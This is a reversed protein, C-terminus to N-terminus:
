KISETSKALDIWDQISLDEARINKDLNLQDFIKILQEKDINSDNSLNNILKKRKASLGRHVLQWVQQEDAKYDWDKIDSIQLIASDVEPQPYFNDKTIIKILKSQAYFAVALSLLSHKQNKLTIREAVEKQVLLTMSVPKQKATIFKEILKGTLYYPINSIVKYNKAQHDFLFKQWQQDTLSLIDQWQIQLNDSIKALKNLPVQFNKDIEFAIVQGAKIVLRQTLAGLGPGIELVLDQKDPEAAEIISDLIDDSVLFNQGRVKNPTLKYKNLLFKLQSLDM